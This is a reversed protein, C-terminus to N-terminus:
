ESINGSSACHELQQLSQQVAESDRERKLQALRNLQSERVADNDIDLVPVLTEEPSPYANLGVIVDTGSDIRAQRRAAAEEIRMKPVGTEIAKAMGGLGEVEEILEWAAHMLEHTLREVYYSGAWPDVIRTIDTEQQLYIQSNRAVRLNIQLLLGVDRPNDIRPGAGIINLPQSVFQHMSGPLQNLFYFSEAAHRLCNFGANGLHANFLRRCAPLGADVGAGIHNHAQIHIWRRLLRQDRDEVDVVIRHPFRLQATKGLQLAFAVCISHALREFMELLTGSGAHAVQQFARHIDGALASSQTFDRGRQFFDPAAILGGRAGDGSDVRSLTASACLELFRLLHDRLKLLRFAPTRAYQHGLHPLVAMVAARFDDCSSERIDAEVHIDARQELSRKLHCPMSDLVIHMDDAHRRQSRTVLRQHRLQDVLQAFEIPVVDQYNCAAHNGRLIVFKKVLGSYGADVSGARHNGHRRLSNDLYQVAARNSSSGSHHVLLLTRQTNEGAAEYWLRRSLQARSSRAAMTGEQRLLVDIPNQSSVAGNQRLGNRQDLARASCVPLQGLSNDFVTKGM